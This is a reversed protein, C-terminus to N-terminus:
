GWDVDRELREVQGCGIIVVVVARRRWVAEKRWRGGSDVATWRRGGGDVAIRMGDAAQGGGCTDEGM